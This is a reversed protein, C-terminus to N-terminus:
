LLCQPPVMLVYIFEEVFKDFSFCPPMVNQQDPADATYSMHSWLRWTVQIKLSSSVHHVLLRSFLEPYAVTINRRERYYHRYAATISKQYFAFILVEQIAFYYQTLILARVQGIGVILGANRAHRRLNKTVLFAALFLTLSVFTLKYIPSFAKAIQLVQMLVQM